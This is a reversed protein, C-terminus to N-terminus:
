YKGWYKKGTWFTKWGEDFECNDPANQFLPAIEADLFGALGCGIKTVKFKLEPHRQAYDIFEEVYKEVEKIPLSNLKKDKTPLAYSNGTPGNGVGYLAGHDTRATKAAGAGHFGSLNSGFVVIQDSM